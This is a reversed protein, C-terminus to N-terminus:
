GTGPEYVLEIATYYVYGGITNHDVNVACIDGNELSNFVASLDLSGFFDASAAITYIDTDNETHQAYNEGEKGYTSNLTVSKGSGASGSTVIGILKLSVLAKFDAPVVFLFDHNGTGAISRNKFGNYINNWDVPFYVTDGPGFYEKTMIWTTVSEINYLRNDGGLDIYPLGETRLDELESENVGLFVLINKERVIDKAAM